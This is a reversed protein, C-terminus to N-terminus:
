SFAWLRAHLQEAQEQLQPGRHLAEIRAAVHRCYSELSQLELASPRFPSAFHVSVAGICGDSGTLPASLVARFPTARAVDLFPAFEADQEVDPVFCTRQEKVARGCIAGEDLAVRHFRDLFERGLGAQQVLLLEGRADLLQVNGREAGHLAVVDALATELIEELGRASRLRQVMPEVLM